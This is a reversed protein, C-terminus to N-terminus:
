SRNLRHEIAQVTALVEADRSLIRSEIKRVASMVTTHDKGGFRDGLETYSTNLRQRCLYMAIMRPQAVSRHRRHSKLDSMRINFYECVARQIDDVTTLSERPPNTGRLAERAFALDIPRKLLEAKVALRLLTGELERVNSQVTEALFHAVEDPLDIREQEAKKKVIAVRTDLEPAQIDAVMGWQFRSILREEMGKMQQPYVDSSVVIQRDSHYLANFTHFFEEMTQDRGALFQIDDMLLVDCQTRYHDRFEDMKHNQLAAIFENTFREASVYLIRANPRDELVRHGIANVLHTKGLGVGGYIFLPNYRAGPSSAAAVSAAHALQNSPGVVFSEFRYRPNLNAAVRPPEAPRAAPPPTTERVRAEQTKMQEALREDVEWSVDVDGIGSKDRVLGLLIDLYHTRIWEAYFKNPIRLRLRHGDCGGWAIPALWTEFNEPSLRQRMDSLASEWHEQM